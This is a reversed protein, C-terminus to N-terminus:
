EKTVKKEFPNIYCVNTIYKINKLKEITTASVDTDTEIICCADKGKDTRSLKMTAINIKFNSLVKSIESIIGPKDKQMLILTYTKASIDTEYSNIKVVKIQGGGISSGIINIKNNKNDSFTMLVSNEHVDELEIQYFDYTINLKKAIEFSNSLKEDDEYISCIGAVLALDTGHGKHTKAFSGHLGFSVHSFKFDVLLAAIRSLKAAGATHSSSPGIMIPGLAEFISINM